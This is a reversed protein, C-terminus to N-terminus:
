STSKLKLLSFGMVIFLGGTVRHFWQMFSQRTFVGRMSQALYGYSCLVLLSLMMFVSTLVFFQPMIPQNVSLFQPFLAVFFLIPKPNTAALFLGELFYTSNKKPIAAAAVHETHLTDRSLYWQKIGLYVLYIVGIIKIALFLYASSLLLAGLGLISVTSLFLLGLVNGLSSLLVTKMNATMGNAIALFVAPGPSLIYFFSVVLYISLVEISM